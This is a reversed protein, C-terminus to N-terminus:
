DGDEQVNMVVLEQKWCAETKGGDWDVVCCNRKFGVVTGTTMTGFKKVTSGIEIPNAEDEYIEKAPAEAPFLAATDLSDLAAKLDIAPKAAEVKADVPPVPAKDKWPMPKGIFPCNHEEGPTILGGDNACKCLTIPTAYQWATATKSLDVPVIEGTGKLEAYVFGIDKASADTVRGITGFADVVDGIDINYIKLPQVDDMSAEILEARDHANVSSEPILYMKLPDNDDYSVIFHVGPQDKYKVPMGAGYGSMSAAVAEKPKHVEVQKEAEAGWAKNLAQIKEMSKKYEQTALELEESPKREQGAASLFEKYKERYGSITKEMEKLVKEAGAFDKSSILSVLQNRYALMRREEAVGSLSVTERNEVPLKYGLEDKTDVRKPERKMHKTQTGTRPKTLVIATYHVLAAMIEAPTSAGNLNNVLYAATDTPLVAILAKLEDSGKLVRKLNDAVVGLAEVEQAYKTELGSLIEPEYGQAKMEEINPPIPQEMVLVPDTGTQQAVNEIMSVVRPYIDTNIWIAKAVREMYKPDVYDRPHIKDKAINSKTKKAEIKAKEKDYYEKVKAEDPTGKVKAMLQQYARENAALEPAYKSNVSTEAVKKAANTFVEGSRTIAIDEAAQRAFDEIAAAAQDSLPIPSRTSVSKVMLNVLANQWLAKQENYIAQEDATLHFAADIHKTSYDSEMVEPTVIRTETKYGDGDCLEIIYSGSYLNVIKGVQGTEKRSVTTGVTLEKKAM